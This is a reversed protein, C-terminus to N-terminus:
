WQVIWPPDMVAPWPEGWIVKVAPDGPVSVALQTTALLKPSWADLAAVAWIALVGLAQIVAPGVM